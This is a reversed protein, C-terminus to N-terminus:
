RIGTATQCTQALKIYGARVQDLIGAPPQQAKVKAIYAHLTPFNKGDSEFEQAFAHWATGFDEMNKADKLRKLSAACKTGVARRAQELEHVIENRRTTAAEKIGDLFKCATTFVSKHKDSTSKCLAILDTLAGNLDKFGEMTNKGPEKSKAFDMEADGVRRIQESIGTGGSKLGLNKPENLVKKWDEVKKRWEDVKAM